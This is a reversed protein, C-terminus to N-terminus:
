NLNVKGFHLPMPGGYTSRASKFCVKQGIISQSWKDVTVCMCKYRGLDVPLLMNSVQTLKPSASALQDTGSFSIYICVLIVDVEECSKAM